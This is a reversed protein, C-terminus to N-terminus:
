IYLTCVGFIFLSLLVLVLMFEVHLSQRVKIGKNEDPIRMLLGRKEKREM